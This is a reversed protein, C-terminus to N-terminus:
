KAKGVQQAWRAREGILEQIRLDIDDIQARGQTLDLPSTRRAAPPKAAAGGAKSGSGPKRSSSM